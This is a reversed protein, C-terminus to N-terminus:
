LSESDKVEWYMTMGPYQYEGQEQLPPLDANNKRNVLYESFKSLITQLDERWLGDDEDMMKVQILIQKKM